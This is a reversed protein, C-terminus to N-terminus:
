RKEVKGSGLGKEVYVHPVTPAPLKPPAPKQNQGAM